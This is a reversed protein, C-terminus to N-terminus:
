DMSCFISKVGFLVVAEVLDHAVRVVASLPLVRCRMTACVRKFDWRFYSVKTL